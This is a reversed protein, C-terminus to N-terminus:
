RQPPHKCPERFMSLESKIRKTVLDSNRLSHEWVRLVKWGSYRLLRNTTRDRAANRAIKRQWFARNSRPMRCHWRCGHWFCGDVFIALREQRFIFDPKGPLPQHRRWGTIGNARFIAVLRIETANNGRSKIAAMIQSRKAKSFVDAM